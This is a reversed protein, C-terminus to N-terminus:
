HPYILGDLWEIFRSWCSRRVKDGTIFPQTLIEELTIRKEPRVQLMSELLLKAEYSLKPYRGTELDRLFSRTGYLRLDFFDDDGMNRYPMTGYCLMFACVGLSWVDARYLDHYEDPHYYLEPAIYNLKGQVLSRASVTREALEKDLLALGLDSVIAKSDDTVIINELSVDHHMVGIQKLAVLAHVIDRLIARVTDETFGIPAAANLQGWLDGHKYYPFVAWSGEGCILQICNQINHEAILRSIELEKDSVKKIVVDVKPDKIEHALYLKSAPGVSTTTFLTEEIAFTRNEITLNIFGEL